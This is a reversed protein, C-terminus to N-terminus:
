DFIPRRTAHDYALWVAQRKDDVQDQRWAPTELASKSCACYGCSDRPLLSQEASLDHVDRACIEQMRATDATGDQAPMDNQTTVPPGTTCPHQSVAKRKSRWPGPEADPQAAEEAGAAPHATAQDLAAASPRTAATHPQRPVKLGPAHQKLGLDNVSEPFGTRWAGAVEPMGEGLAAATAAASEFLVPAEPGSAHQSLASMTATEPQGTGVPDPQSPAAGTQKRAPTLQPRRASTQDLQAQADPRAHAHVGLALSSPTEPVVAGGPTTHAASNPWMGERAAQRDAQKWQSAAEAMSHQQAALTQPQQGTAQSADELTTAPCDLSLLPGSAHAPRYHDAPPAHSHGQLQAEGPVHKLPQLQPPSPQVATPPVCAACTAAAVDPAMSAPQALSPLKAAAPVLAAASHQPHQERQLTQAGGLASSAAAAHSASAWGLTVLDPGSVPLGSTKHRESEAQTPM